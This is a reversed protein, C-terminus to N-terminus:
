EAKKTDDIKEISMSVSFDSKYETSSPKGKLEDIDTMFGIDKEFAQLYSVM